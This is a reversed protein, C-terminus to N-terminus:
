KVHKGAPYSLRIEGRRQWFNNNDTKKLIAIMTPRFNYRM